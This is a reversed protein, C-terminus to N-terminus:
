RGGGAARLAARMKAEHEATWGGAIIGQFWERLAARVSADSPEGQPEPPLHGYEDPSDCEDARHRTYCGHIHRRAPCTGSGDCEDQAFEDGEASPEPVESRRFRWVESALIADRIMGGARSGIVPAGDPWRVGAIVAALAEREDDTPTPVPAWGLAKLAAVIATADTLYAEQGALDLDGWAATGYERSDRANLYLALQETHHDTM